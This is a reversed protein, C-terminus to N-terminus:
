DAATRSDGAVPGGNMKVARSVGGSVVLAMISASDIAVREVRDRHVLLLTGAMSYSFPLYVAVQGALGLFELDDQTIFGLTRVGETVLVTVPQDFRKKDGVFAELLDKISAYILRVLPARTFVTETLNLFKRVFFNSALAGIAIIAVITIAFGAGPTALNLLRDIRTFAEYILYLTLAIPVVIILGRLFNKILWNM